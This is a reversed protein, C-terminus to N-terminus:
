IVIIVITVTNKVFSVIMFLFAINRVHFRKRGFNNDSTTEGRSNGGVAVSCYGPSPFVFCLFVDIKKGVEFDAHNTEHSMEIIQGDKAESPLYLAAASENSSTNGNNGHHHDGVLEDYERSPAGAAVAGASHWRGTDDDM